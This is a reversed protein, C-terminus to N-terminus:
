LKPPRRDLTAVFEAETMDAKCNNCDSCTPAYNEMANAGGKSLPQRHDVTLTNPLNIKMTMACHCYFCSRKGLKWFFKRINKLAIRNAKVAKPMKPKPPVYEYSSVAAHYATKHAACRAEFSNGTEDAYRIRGSLFHRHLRTLRFTDADTWETASNM